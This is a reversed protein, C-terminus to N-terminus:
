ARGGLVLESPEASARWDALVVLAELYALRFPGLDPRSLLELVEGLWTDPGAFASLGVVDLTTPPLAVGGGLDIAPLVEGHALGLVTEVTGDADWDARGGSRRPLPRAGIRVKGHHAAVLYRVLTHDGGGVTEIAAKGDSTRLAALSAAEHRFGAREVRPGAGSRSKALVMDSSQGGEQLVAQFVPHAKGLDHLRAAAVVDQAPLPGSGVASVLVAAEREADLLHVALAVPGQTHSLPDDDLARDHGDVDAADRGSLVPLDVAEVTARSTPDWGAEPTYGGLRAAAVVVAGPRVHTRTGPVWRRDLHDHVWWCPGDARAEIWKRFEGVPVRVLESARPRDDHAPAQESTRWALFLDTEDADRVYPSVDIDNGTLDPLTDFLAELDRRRLVAAEPPPEAALAALEQGTLPAGDLQALLEKTQAVQEADYPAAGVPEVGLLRATGDAEGYRNCRGARQVLATWSCLETVLTTSTIDVGAELAQTSVVVQGGDPLDQTTAIRTLRARDDPRFRSHVLVVQPAAGDVLRTLAAAVARARAVTNVFVITRSGAAHMALVAAALERADPPKAEPDSLLPAIRRTAGVVTALRSDSPVEGITVPTPAHPADVTSLWEPRVTASMWMSRTPHWTGLRERFAQLQRSTPLAAGMLQVEDFVWQSDDNLLGFEMPWRFRNSAYGRNLARSLLMDISGIVISEREPRTRWEDDRRGGLLVHLGIADNLGLQELWGECQDALQDVLTRLPLAVVLRRPTTDRVSTDPHHLRRWLWPLVAAVSKGAGTPAQLLEPLGEDALKRQYAYPEFGTAIATFTAFDM